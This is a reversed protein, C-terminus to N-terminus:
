IAIEMQKGDKPLCDFLFNIYGEITLKKNDKNEAGYLKDSMRYEYEGIKEMFVDSKIISPMKRSLLQVILM